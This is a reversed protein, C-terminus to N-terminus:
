SKGEIMAVFGNALVSMREVGEETTTVSVFPNGQTVKIFDLIQGTAPDLGESGVPLSGAVDLLKKLFAPRVVRVTEVEDPYNREAWALAAADDTVKVSKRGGSYGVSALKTGDPLYAGRREVHQKGMDATVRARLAAEIPKLVAMYTQLASLKEADTLGEPVGPGGDTVAGPTTDTM